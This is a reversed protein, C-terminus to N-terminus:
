NLQVQVEIVHNPSTVILENNQPVGSGNPIFHTKDEEFHSWIQCYQCVIGM